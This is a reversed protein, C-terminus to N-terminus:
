LAFVVVLMADIVCAVAVFMVAVFGLELFCFLSNNFPM